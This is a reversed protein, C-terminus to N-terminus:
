RTWWRSSRFQKTPHRRRHRRRPPPARPRARSWSARSPMAAMSSYSTSSARSSPALSRSRRRTAWASRSTRCPRSCCSANTRSARRTYSDRVLEIRSAQCGVSTGVGSHPVHALPLPVRCMASSAGSTRDQSRHHQRQDVAARGAISCRLREQQETDVCRVSTANALPRVFSRALSRATARVYLFKPDM